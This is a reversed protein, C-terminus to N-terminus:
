LKSIPPNKVTPFYEFTKILFIVKILIKEVKSPPEIFMSKSFLIM